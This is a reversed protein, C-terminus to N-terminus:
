VALLLLISYYCIKALTTVLLTRAFNIRLLGAIVAIFKGFFPIVVLLLFIINYKTEIFKKPSPKGLINSLVIGVLYNACIAILNAVIVVALIIANDYNGFSRMTYLVLEDSISFVLNSFFSDTFLLAYSEFKDM